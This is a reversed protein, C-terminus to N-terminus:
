YRPVAVFLCEHDSATIARLQVHVFTSILRLFLHSPFLKKAFSGFPVRSATNVASTPPLIFLFSFLFFSVRIEASSCRRCVTPTGTRRTTGSSFKRRAHPRFSPLFWKKRWTQRRSTLTAASQSLHPLLAFPETVDDAFFLSLSALSSSPLPCFLSKHAHRRRPTPPPTPTPPRSSSFLPLFREKKWM